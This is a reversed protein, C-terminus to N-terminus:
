AHHGGIQLNREFGTGAQTLSRGRMVATNGFRGRAALVARQLRRDKERAEENCFLTPQSGREPVLGGLGIGVRRVKLGSGMRAKLISSVAQALQDRSDTPEPLTIQGGVGSGNRGNAHSWAMWASVSSALMGRRTLELASEDLMELAVVLAEDEEYDRMLVQGNSISSTAPQYEKIQALTTTEIGRAHDALHRANTGFERRLDEWPIHCVGELDRVGFRALLRRAIGPGVGWIDTIPRHHWVRRRFSAGDLQGIFNPAHKAVIDCAVKCLFLNTGVGATAVLGTREHVDAIIRGALEEASCGYYRLYPGVDLFAEDCSYAHVDQASVWRLYTQYVDASAEMYRRMRPMAKTYTLRSPIQYVRARGSVGQAKLHPSVALCLTGDGRTPDAVVLDATLPDLGRDVCEVSAYFSKMDICLYHGIDAADHPRADGQGM